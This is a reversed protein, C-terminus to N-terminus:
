AWLIYAPLFPLSTCISTFKTLFVSDTPIGYKSITRNSLHLKDALEQQTLNKAKRREAIFIGMKNTDM